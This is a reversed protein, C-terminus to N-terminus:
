ADLADDIDLALVAGDRHVADLVQEMFRHAQGLPGVVVPTGANNEDGAADLAFDDLFRECPEEAVASVM